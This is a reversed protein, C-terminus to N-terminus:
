APGPAHLGHYRMDFYELADNYEGLVIPTIMEGGVDESGALISNYEVAPWRLRRTVCEEDTLRM